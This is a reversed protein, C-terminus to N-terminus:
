FISVANLSICSEGHFLTIPLIVSDARNRSCIKYLRQTRIKIPSCLSYKKPKIKSSFPLKRKASNEQPFMEKCRISVLSKRNKQINPTRQEILM